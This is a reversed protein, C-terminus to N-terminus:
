TRDASWRDLVSRLHALADDYDDFQIHSVVCPLGLAFRSVRGDGEYLLIVPIDNQAALQLEMGVSVSPSGVYAIVVDSKRVRAMDTLYIDRPSRDTTDGPDTHLHPVYAQFGMDECLSAIREYFARLVHASEGSLACSIYAEPM